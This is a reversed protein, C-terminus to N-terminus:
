PDVVVAPEFDGSVVCVMAYYLESAGLLNILRYAVVAKGFRM